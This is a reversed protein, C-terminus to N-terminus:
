WEAGFDLWSIIRKGQGSQPHLKSSAGITEGHVDPLRLLMLIPATAMRLPRELCVLRLSHWSDDRCTKAGYHVPGRFCRGFVCAQRGSSRFTSRRVWLGMTSEGAWDYFVYILVATASALVRCRTFDRMHLYLDMQRRVPVRM